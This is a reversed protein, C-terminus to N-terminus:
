RCVLKGNDNQLNNCGNPLIISSPVYSNDNKKCICNFSGTIWKCDRCSDKDKYPGSVDPPKVQGPLLLDNSIPKSYFSIDKPIDPKMGPKMYSDMDSKIENLIYNVDNNNKIGAFGEKTHYSAFLLLLILILSPFFLKCRFINKFKFM